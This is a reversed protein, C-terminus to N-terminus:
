KKKRGKQGLGIKKAMESRQAAYEPAVMPYDRSLGWRERYDKPELDHETRLHRKLSKFKRGCELCAIADDKVSTRISVAPKVDEVPEKLADQRANVLAQHVDRIVKPLETSGVSNNSVYGAVIHATLEPIDTEQDM